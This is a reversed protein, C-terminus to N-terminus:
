ILVVTIGGAKLAAWREVGAGGVLPGLLRPDPADPITSLTDDSFGTHHMDLRIETM